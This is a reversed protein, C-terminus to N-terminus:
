EDKLRVQSGSGAWSAFPTRVKAMARCFEATHIGTKQEAEWWAKPVPLQLMGAFFSAKTEWQEPDLLGHKLLWYQAELKQFHSRWLMSYPYMQAPSFAAPDADPQWLRMTDAPFNFTGPTNTDFLINQALEENLDAWGISADYAARARVARTNSRVQHALFVISIIVGLAGIWEGLAGIAEWTM